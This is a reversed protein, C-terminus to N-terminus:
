GAALLAARIKGLTFSLSDKPVETIFPKIIWGLGWPLDRSLTISECQVYTGGDRELFRWYTNLRWMFGHGKGPPEEHETATDADVVEAIRTSHLVSYTRDPAAKTFRAEHETNLTVAVVRKMYFRLFVKFTDGHRELTKSRVVNPSFIASHRDYDQMLAVADPMRINPIFVTGVWHHLLGDPIDTSGDLRVRDIVIDGRRLRSLVDQQRPAKLRDAWLFTQPQRVEETMRREAIQVYRDFAAVTKASLESATLYTVSLLVCALALAIRNLM